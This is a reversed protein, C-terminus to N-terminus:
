LLFNILFTHPGFFFHAARELVQDIAPLGFFGIQCFHSLPKMQLDTIETLGTMKFGGTRRGGDGIRKRPGGLGRPTYPVLQISSQEEFELYMVSLFLSTNM